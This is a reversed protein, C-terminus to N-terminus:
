RGKAKWSKLSLILEEASQYRHEPKKEMMRGCITALDDPVEERVAGIPAPQTTQHKLLRASISGTAFPARGVLMYYLVCGLSYIDIRRDPSTSSLAQEPALYDAIGDADAVDSPKDLLGDFDSAGTANRLIPKGNLLRINSPSLMGYMRSTKHLQALEHAIMLTLEVAEDISLAGEARVREDLTQLNTNEDFREITPGSDEGQPQGYVKGEVIFCGCWPCTGALLKAHAAKCREDM